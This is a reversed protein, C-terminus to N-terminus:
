RRTVNVSRYKHKTRHDHTKIRRARTKTRHDHINHGKTGRPLNGIRGCGKTVCKVYSAAAKGIHKVGRKAGNRIESPVIIRNAKRIGRGTAKGAKKLGSGVKKAANGVKKAAGKISWALRMPAVEPSPSVTKEIEIDMVVPALNVSAQASLQASILTASMITATAVMVVTKHIM